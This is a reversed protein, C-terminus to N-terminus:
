VQKEHHRVRLYIPILTLMLLASLLWSIQISTHKVVWGMVILGVAAGLRGMMSDFSLVTARKDSPIYRNLYAQKMPKDIGRGVEYVMFMGAVLYFIQSYAAIFIPLALVLVMFAMLPTFNKSKETYRKSIYSGLLMALSFAVWIWGLIYIRGGVLEEFRPAWFMNLAQFSFFTVISSIVLWLVTKNKLGYFISDNVVQRMRKLGGPIAVKGVRGFPEEMLFLALFFSLLSFVGGVFWPIRLSINGLYAGILGGLILAVKSYINAQSFVFDVRGKYGQVAMTDVVWASLAGSRFTFALAAILEAIIFFLMRDSLFYVFFAVSLILNGLLLSRKRGFIDAFAGTPVEFIFNGIMFFFNVTNVQLPDLGAKLLFLVYTTISFSIALDYFFTVLYYVTKAERRKINGKVTTIRKKM